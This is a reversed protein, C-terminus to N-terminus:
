IGAEKKDIVGFAVSSYRGGVVRPFGLRYFEGSFSNEKMVVRKSAVRVAENVMRIDLPKSNVIGRVPHMSSSKERPYRFMPDFYVIDFSNDPQTLLYNYCDGCFVRIRAMAERLVASETRYNQLGQQVVYALEPSYEIGVVSGTQGVAFAAVIADAGLGLTCDLVRDGPNLSMAEVMHDNNVQRLAKLRPVSMSPHFFYEGAPTHIKIENNAIILIIDATYEKRLRELSLRNRPVVQAKLSLAANEALLLSQEDPKHSTTIITKM